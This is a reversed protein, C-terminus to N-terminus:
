RLDQDTLLVTAKATNCGRNAIGRSDRVVHVDAALARCANVLRVDADETENMPPKQVRLVSDTDEGDTPVEMDVNAALRGRGQSARAVLLTIKPSASVSGAADRALHYRIVRSHGITNVPALDCTPRRILTSTSHIAMKTHVEIAAVLEARRPLYDPILVQTPVRRARSVRGRVQVHKLM